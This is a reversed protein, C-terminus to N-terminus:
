QGAYKRQLEELMAREKLIKKNKLSEQRKKEKEMKKRLLEDAKEKEAKARKVYDKVIQPLDNKVDKEELMILRCNRINSIWWKLADYEENTVDDWDTVNALRLIDTYDYNGGHYEILKIKM